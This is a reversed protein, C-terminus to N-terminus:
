QTGPTRRADATLRRRPGWARRERAVGGGREGRPSGLPERWVRSRPHPASLRSGGQVFRSQDQPAESGTAGCGSLARLSVGDGRGGGGSARRPTERAPSHPLGPQGIMPAGHLVPRGPSGKSGDGRGRRDPATLGRHGDRSCRGCPPWRARLVQGRRAGRGADPGPSLSRRASDKSRRTGSGQRGSSRPGATARGSQCNGGQFPLPGRPPSNHVIATKVGAVM